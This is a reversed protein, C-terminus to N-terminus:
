TSFNTKRSQSFKRSTTTTSINRATGSFKVSRIIPFEVVKFKLLNKADDYYISVDEFIEIAIIKELIENIEKESYDRKEKFYQTLISQETRITGEVAVDDVQLSFLPLFLLFIAFFLFFKNM